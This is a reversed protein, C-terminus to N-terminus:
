IFVAVGYKTAIAQKAQPVTYHCRYLKRQTCSARYLQRARDSFKNVIGEFYYSLSPVTITHQLISFLPPTSISYTQLQAILTFRDFKSHGARLSLACYKINARMSARQSFPSKCNCQMSGCLGSCRKGKSTKILM